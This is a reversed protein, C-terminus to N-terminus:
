QWSGSELPIIRENRGQVDYRIRPLFSKWELIAIHHTYNAHYQVTAVNSIM